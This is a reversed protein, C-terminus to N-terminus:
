CKKNHKHKKGEYWSNKSCNDKQWLPQLNTYHFCLKQQELDTLDFSACPRIHDINWKDKGKGWNDWTMGKLFLSEIYERLEKKTCGILKQTKDKKKTNQFKVIQNFSSSLNKALRFEPEECYRKKRNARALELIKDKNEEIYKPKKEVDWKKRYIRAKDPDNDQKDKYKQRLDPDSNWKLRAKENIRDRNRERYAKQQIKSKDSNKDIWAKNKKNVRDKNDKQYQISKAIIHGRNNLYYERNKQKLLDKNRERWERHKASDCEKCSPRYGSGQGSAKTFSELTKELKCKTCIKM